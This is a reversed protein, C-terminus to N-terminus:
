NPLNFLSRSDEFEPVSTKGYLLLEAIIRGNLPAFKFGHGSCPSSVAIRPDNPLLSLVFNEKPANTYFCSEIHVIKEIPEVFNEEVFKELTRMRLATDPSNKQDPDDSEHVTTHRSVKIGLIGSGFEPLGYYIQNDGDGISAWNPFTGLRYLEQNGRLQFYGVTQRVPILFNKFLPVLQAVWPGAAIALRKAFFEGKNTQIRIPDEGKEIHLVKTEEHLEISRKRCLDALGEMTKKVDVIGSSRDHLVFPTKGFRFQPFLNRAQAMNLEEVEGKHGKAVLTAAAYDQFTKGNGFFCGPNPFILPSGIEKEWEPWDIKRARQILKLYVPNAYLSRTIRSTGHSSGYPHGIRFQEILGIKLNPIRSLFHAIALGNIGAGIM